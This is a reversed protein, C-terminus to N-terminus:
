RYCTNRPFSGLNLGSNFGDIIALSLSTATFASVVM